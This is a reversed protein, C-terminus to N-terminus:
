ALARCLESLFYESLVRAILAQLEGHGPIYM